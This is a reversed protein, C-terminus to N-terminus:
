KAEKLQKLIQKVQTDTAGDQPQFPLSFYHNCKLCVHQEGAYYDGFTEAYLGKEGCNLCHLETKTYEQKSNHSVTQENTKRDTRYYDVEVIM